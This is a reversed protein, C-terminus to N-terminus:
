LTTNTESTCFHSNAILVHTERMLRRGAWGELDDCLGSSLERHWVAAEWQSDMDRVTTYIRCHQERM